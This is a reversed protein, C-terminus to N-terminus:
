RAVGRWVIGCLAVIRVSKAPDTTGIRERVLPVADIGEWIM